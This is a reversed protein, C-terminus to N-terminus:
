TISRRHVVSEILVNKFVIERITVVDDLPVAKLRKLNYNISDFRTWMKFHLIVILIQVCIKNM